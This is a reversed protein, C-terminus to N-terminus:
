KLAFDIHNIIQPVEDIKFDLSATKEKTKQLIILNGHNVKYYGTQGRCFCFRGFLMKTKQLSENTLAINKSDNSEEFIIEERYGADQLNGKVTRSYTYRIVNQTTSEILNYYTKGFDDTKVEMSKNKLLQIICTGDKPCNGSLKMTQVQTASKKCSCSAIILIAVLFLSNKM